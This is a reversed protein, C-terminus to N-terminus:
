NIMFFVPNFCCICPFISIMHLPTWTNRNLFFHRCSYFYQKCRYIPYYYSWKPIFSHTYLIHITLLIQGNVITSTRLPHNPNCITQTHLFLKITSVSMSLSVWWCPSIDVPICLIVYFQVSCNYKTICCVSINLLM